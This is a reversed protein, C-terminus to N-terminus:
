QIEDASSEKLKEEKKIDDQTMLCGTQFHLESDGAMIKRITEKDIGMHSYLIMVLLAKLVNITENMQCFELVNRKDNKYHSYYNRTAVIKRYFGNILETEKKDKTNTKDSSLQLIHIANKAIVSGFRQDLEKIRQDLGVKGLYGSSIWHAIEAAHGSTYKWDPVAKELAETFLPKSDDSFILKKIDKEVIKLADRLEDSIKEDGTIRLHYGEIIRVYEVLIDEAFINKDANASFFRKRIFDFKEENCFDYWNTFYQNIKEDVKEFTTRPKDMLSRNRLNYSYDQNIYLWSKVDQNAIKLRIDEVVSVHGILLGWFEMITELDNQVRAVDVTNEYNIFIRPQNKLVFTTRMDIDHYKTFSESEFQIEIHPNTDKLVLAPYKCECAILEKNETAGISVTNINLWEILEPIIFSVEEIGTIELGKDFKENQQLVYFVRYNSSLELTKNIGKVCNGKTFIKYQHEGDGGVFACPFIEGYDRRYFEISNGDFILEAVKPDNEGEKNWTGLLRKM